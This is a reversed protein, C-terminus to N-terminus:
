LLREPNTSRALRTIRAAETGSITVATRVAYLARSLDVSIWPQLRWPGKLALALAERGCMPLYDNGPSAGSDMPRYWTTLSSFAPPMPVTYRPRAGRM